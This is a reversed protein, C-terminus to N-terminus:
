DEFTEICELHSYNKKDTTKEIKFKLGESEEAIDLLLDDFTRFDGDFDIETDDLIDLSRLFTLVNHIVFGNYQPDDAAMVGNYFLCQNAYGGTKIRFQAKVMPKGKQSEGLELKDLTCIYTEDPLETYTNEKAEKVAAVAAAGGFEKNWKEFDIAM